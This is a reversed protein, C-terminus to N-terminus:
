FCRWSLLGGVWCDGEAQQLWRDSSLGARSRLFVQELGDLGGGASSGDCVCGRDAHVVAHQAGGRMM